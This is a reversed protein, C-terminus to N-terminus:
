GAGGNTAVLLIPAAIALLCVLAFYVSGVLRMVPGSAHRGMLDRDNSALLVPLYTLPMAIGSLV